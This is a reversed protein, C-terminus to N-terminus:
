NYDLVSVPKDQGFKTKSKWTEDGYYKSIMYKKKISYKFLCQALINPYSSM